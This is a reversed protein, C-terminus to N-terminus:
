IQGWTELWNKVTHLPVNQNVISFEPKMGSMPEKYSQPHRALHPFYASCQPFTLSMTCKLHKSHSSIMLWDLLHSRKKMM